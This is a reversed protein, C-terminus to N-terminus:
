SNRRVTVIVWPALAERGGAADAEAGRGGVGGGGERAPPPPPKESVRVTDGASSRATLEARDTRTSSKPSRPPNESVGTSDDDISKMGNKVFPELPSLRSHSIRSRLM